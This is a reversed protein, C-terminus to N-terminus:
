GFWGKAYLEHVLQNSQSARAGLSGFPGLSALGLGITLLILVTITVTVLRLAIVHPLTKM